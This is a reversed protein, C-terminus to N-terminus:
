VRTDTNYESATSSAYKASSSRGRTIPTKNLAAKQPREAPKLGSTSARRVSSSGSDTSRNSFGTSRGTWQPTTSAETDSPTNFSSTRKRPMALMDLRSLKKTEQPRKAPASGAEQSLRDTETGENDSAEGLRARRLVSARTPRPASLSGARSLAKSVRSTKDDEKKLPVTYKKYTQHNNSEQDSYPLSQPDDSLDTSGCKGVSRRLGVPRKVSETKNKSDTGQFRRKESALQVSDQSAISASSKERHFGCVSPKKPLTNPTYRAKNSQQSVTSSTDVDSEGSLSDVTPTTETQAAQFKAELLALVDATDKLYSHTDQNCSGQISEPDPDRQFPQSSINPLKANSPREKTFSEQRILSSSTSERSEPIQPGQGLNPALVSPRVKGPYQNSKPKTLTATSFTKTAHKRDTKPTSCKAGELEPKSAADKSGIYFSTSKASLRVKEENKMEETDSLPRSRQEIISGDDSKSADSLSDPEVDDQVSLRHIDDGSRPGALSEEEVDFTSHLDYHVHISPTPIDGKTGVPVQAPVCPARSGDGNAGDSHQNLM